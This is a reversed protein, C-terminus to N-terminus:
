TAPSRTMELLKVVGALLLTVQVVILVLQQLLAGWEQWQRMRDRISTGVDVEGGEELDPPRLRGRHMTAVLLASTAEERRSSQTSSHRTNETVRHAPPYGEGSEGPSSHPNTTTNAIDIAVTTSPSVANVLGLDTPGERDM